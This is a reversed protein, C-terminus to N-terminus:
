KRMGRLILVLLLVALIAGAGYFPWPTATNLGMGVPLVAPVTLVRAESPAGDASVTQYTLNFALQRIGTAADPSAVLTFPVSVTGGTVPLTKGAFDKPSGAPMPDLQVSVDDGLGDIAIRLPSGEGRFMWQGEPVEIRARGACAGGVRLDVPTPLDIAFVLRDVDAASETHFMTGGSAVRHTPAPAPKAGGDDVPGTEDPEVAVAATSAAGSTSGGMAINPRPLPRGIKAQGQVPIQGEGLAAGTSGDTLPVKAQFSLRVDSHLASNSVTVPIEITVSNDHVPTGIFRTALTGLAAPLVRFQGMEFGGQAPAYELGIAADSLVVAPNQLILVISVIGSEGPALRRPRTSVSGHVMNTLYAASTMGDAFSKEGAARAAEDAEAAKKQEASAYEPGGEAGEAGRQASLGSLLGTSLLLPLLCRLLMM